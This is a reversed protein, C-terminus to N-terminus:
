SDKACQVQYIVPQSLDWNNNEIQELLCDTRYDASRLVARANNELYKDRQNVYAAIWEKEDGGNVPTKEPFKVRLWIPIGGSHIYSDYITLM